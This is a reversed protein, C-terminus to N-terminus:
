FLSTVPPWLVTHECLHAVMVKALKLAKKFNGGFFAKYGNAPM